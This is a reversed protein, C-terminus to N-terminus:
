GSGSNCVRAFVYKSLFVCSFFCCACVQDKLSVAAKLFTETSLSLNQATLNVKETMLDLPTQKGDDHGDQSPFRLVSSTM